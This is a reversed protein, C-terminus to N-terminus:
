ALSDRKRYKAQNRRANENVCTRCRRGIYGNKHMEMFVNYGSFPHGKPCHTRESLRKWCHGRRINELRTVLELHSPNVCLPQKCVVHDLELGEPIPGYYIQWSFRHARWTRKNIGTGTSFKGYGDNGQGAFWIWCGTVWNPFVKEKFREPLVSFDVQIM